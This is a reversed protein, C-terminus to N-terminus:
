DRIIAGQNSQNRPSAVLLHRTTGLAADAAENLPPSVWGEYALRTEGRVFAGDSIFINGSAHSNDLMVASGFVKADGYIKVQDRAVAGGFMWGNESITASGSLLANGFLQGNESIRSDGLACGDNFVWCDGQYQDLNAASELWGGLQGKKVDSFDRVARIRFVTVGLVKKAELTLEYKKAMMKNELSNEDM